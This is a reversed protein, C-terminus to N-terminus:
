KVFKPDVGVVIADALSGAGKEVITWTHPPKDLLRGVDDYERVTIEARNDSLRLTADQTHVVFSKFENVAAWSRGGDRSVAHWACCILLDTGHMHLRAIPARILRGSEPSFSMEGGVFVERDVLRDWATPERARRRERERKRAQKLAKRAIYEDHDWSM